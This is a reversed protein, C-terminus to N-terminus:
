TSLGTPPISRRRGAGFAVWLRRAFEGPLQTVSERKRCVAEPRPGRLAWGGRSGEL